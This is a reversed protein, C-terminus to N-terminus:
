IFYSVLSSHRQGLENRAIRRRRSVHHHKSSRKNHAGFKDGHRPVPSESCTSCSSANSRWSDDDSRQEACLSSNQVSSVAM